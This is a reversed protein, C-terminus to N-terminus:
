VKREERELRRQEAKEQQIPEAAALNAKAQTVAPDDKYKIDDDDSLIFLPTNQNVSMPLTRTQVQTKQSYPRLHM